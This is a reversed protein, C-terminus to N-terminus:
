GSRNVARFEIMIILTRVPPSVGRMSTAGGKSRSAQQRQPGNVAGGLSSARDWAGPTSGLPAKSVLNRTLQARCGDKVIPLDGREQRHAIRDFGHPVRKGGVRHTADVHRLAGM